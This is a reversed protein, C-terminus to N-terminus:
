VYQCVRERGSARGIEGRGIIVDFSLVFPPLAAAVRPADGRGLGIQRDGAGRAVLLYLDTRDAFLRRARQQLARSLRPPSGPVTTTGARLGIAPRERLSAAQVYLLPHCRQPPTRINGIRGRQPLDSSCVDSSM